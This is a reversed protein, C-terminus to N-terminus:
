YGKQALSKVNEIHYFTHTSSSMTIPGMSFKAHWSCLRAIYLAVCLIPVMEQM